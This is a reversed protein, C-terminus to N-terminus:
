AVSATCTIELFTLRGGVQKIGVIGFTQGECTLRDTRLIGRTFTSSRVTFRTSLVAVITSATFKEADSIDRREAFVVDGLPEFPGPRTSLGDDIMESRLFQVRRDLQTASMGM